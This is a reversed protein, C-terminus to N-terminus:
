CSAVSASQKIRTRYNLGSKEITSDFGGTHKCIQEENGCKLLYPKRMEVAEAEQNM